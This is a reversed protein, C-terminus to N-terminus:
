PCGPLCQGYEGPSEPPGYCCSLGAACTTDAAGGFDCRAGQAARGRGTGGSTAAPESAGSSATAGGSQAGGCAGLVLASWAVMAWVRYAVRRGRQEM